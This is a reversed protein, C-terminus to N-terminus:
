VFHFSSIITGKIYTKRRLHKRSNINSHLSKTVAMSNHENNVSSVRLTKMVKPM